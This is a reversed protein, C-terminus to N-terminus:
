SLGKRLHALVIQHDAGAGIRELLTSYPVAYRSGPNPTAFTTMGQAWPDVVDVMTGSASGDGTIGAIVVAHEGPPSSAVFLPGHLDILDRLATAAPPRGASATALGFAEFVDPHVAGRGDAYREWYGSGASAATPDAEVEDRWCVMAACAAAHCSLGAVQPFTPVDTAVRFAGGQAAIAAVEAVDTITASGNPSVQVGPTSADAPAPAAPALPAPVDAVPASGSGVEALARDLRDFDVSLSVAGQDFRSPANALSMQEFVDHTAAVGVGQSPAAPVPQRPAAPVDPLPIRGDTSSAASSTGQAHALIAQIDQAFAEDATAAAAPTVEWGGLPDPAPSHPAGPDAAASGPADAAHPPPTPRAMLVAPAGPSPSLEASVQLDGPTGTPTAADVHPLGPGAVLPASLMSVFTAHGEDYSRATAVRPPAAAPGAKATGPSRRCGAAGGDALSTELQQIRGRGSGASM